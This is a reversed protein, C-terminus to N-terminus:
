LNKIKDFLKVNLTSNIIEIQKKSLNNKRPYFKKLGINKKSHKDSGMLMKQEIDIFNKSLPKLNFKKAIDSLIKIKNNILNNYYIGFSVNQRKEILEEMWNLNFDNWINIYQVITAENQLDTPIKTKHINNLIKNYESYSICWSYPDKFIAIFTLNGSHVMDNYYNIENECLDTVVTNDKHANYTKLFDENVGFKSHKDGYLNSFVIVDYNLELLARIYNTGSRQLGYQKIIKDKM